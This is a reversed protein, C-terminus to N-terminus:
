ARVRVPERLRSRNRVAFVITTAVVLVLGVAVAVDAVNFAIRGAIIPDPVGAFSPWLALSTLNAAAGGVAIGGALAIPVSRSLVIAIAWITAATAGAAIYGVPRVHGIVPESGNLAIAKYTLDVAAVFGATLLLVLATVRM